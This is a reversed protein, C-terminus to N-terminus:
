QVYDADLFYHIEKGDTGRIRPDVKLTGALKRMNWSYRTSLNDKLSVYIMDTPKPNGGFCCTGQDPVLIFRRIGDTRGDPYVYGKIFIRKGQLQMAEPPIPLDPHDPSPQLDAFDLRLAGEPVETAFDYLNWSCVLVFSAAALGFGWNAAWHGSGHEGAESLQWFAIAAIIMALLSAALMMPFLFATLSLLGFCLALIAAFNTEGYLIPADAPRSALAPKPPHDAPSPTPKTELDVSM